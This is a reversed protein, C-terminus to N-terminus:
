EGSATDITSVLGKTTLVAVCILGAELIILCEKELCVVKSIIGFLSTEFFLLCFKWEKLLQIKDIFPLFPFTSGGLHVSHQLCTFM